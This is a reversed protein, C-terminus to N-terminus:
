IMELAASVCGTIGTSVKSITTDEYMYAPTSVIKNISDVYFGDATTVVHHNGLKEIEAATAKDNGITVHVGRGKLALCVIAPSICIAGIPKKLSHMEIILKELSPNIKAAAGNFAFTSLNKAAGFGGPIILADLNSSKADELKSLKGRAIRSAEVFVDRKEGAIEKTAHNVVHYQDISPAFIQTTVDCCNDIALLTLVAEHIEAGDLFGCGSLVVGVTKM